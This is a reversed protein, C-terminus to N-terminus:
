LYTGLTFIPPYVEKEARFLLLDEKSEDRGYQKLLKKLLTSCRENIKEWRVGWAARGYGMHYYAWQAETQPDGEDNLETYEEHERSTERFLKVAEEHTLVIRLSM